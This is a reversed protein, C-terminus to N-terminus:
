QNVLTSAVTLTVQQFQPEAASAQISLRSIALLPESNELQAIANGLVAFDAEPIEISWTDNVWAALESQNFQASAELRTSIKDIKQNAFFTKMRPPFWAIPAGESSLAKLAAFRSTAAGAQRELTSVKSMEAKSSAMKGQLDAISAIAADRSKNLPGLFFTFYCYLLGVFGLSSLILKQLQDKNLKIKKM